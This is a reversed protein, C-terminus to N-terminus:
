FDFLDQDYQRSDKLGTTIDWAKHHDWPIAPQYIIIGLFFTGYAYGWFSKTKLTIKKLLDFDRYIVVNRQAIKCYANSIGERPTLVPRAIISSVKSIGACNQIPWCGDFIWMAPTTGSGWDPHFLSTIKIPRFIFMQILDPFRPMLWLVTLSSDELQNLLLSSEM